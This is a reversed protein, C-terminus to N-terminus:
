RSIVFRRTASANDGAIRALYVGQPYSDTPLILCHRGPTPDLDLTTIGRGSLDYITLEVTDLGSPLEYELTVASNAPNPYPHDLFLARGRPDPITVEIPGYPHTIGDGRVAKLTYEWTQGPELDTDLLEYPGGDAPLPQEHVPHVGAYHDEKIVRDVVYSHFPWEPTDTWKLEVNGDDNVEAAFNTDNVWAGSATLCIMFRGDESTGGVYYLNGNPAIITHEFPGWEPNGSIPLEVEERWVETGSSDLCVLDDFVGSEATYIYGDADIIPKDTPDVHNDELVPGWLISGDTPDFAFLSYGNVVLFGDPHYSIYRLYMEPNVDFDYTYSWLENGEEDVAARYSYPYDALVIYVNNDEDITRNGNMDYFWDYEGGGGGYPYQYTNACIINSSYTITPYFGLNHYDYNNIVEGWIETGSIAYEKIYYVDDDYLEGFLLPNGDDTFNGFFEGANSIVGEEIYIGDQYNSQIIINKIIVNSEDPSIVPWWSYFWQGPHDYTAVLNGNIDFKGSQSYLNHYIYGQSDMTIRGYGTWPKYWLLRVGEHPGVYPSQGTNQYDIGRTASATQASVLSSFVLLLVLILKRMM